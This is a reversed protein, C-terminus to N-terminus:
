VSLYFERLEKIPIEIVESLAFSYLKVNIESVGTIAEAAARYYSLQRIHRDILMKRAEEISVNNPIFDTKYDLVTLVGNGDVYLCDIVGQVLISENELLKKSEENESFSSAKLRANFRLERQINKANLLEYFLETNIFSKIMKSSVLSATTEDIFGSDTLRKLEFEFGNNKLSEFNCFQMFQHTATGIDAGTTIEGSIFKVENVKVKSSGELKACDDAEDLISPYLQSVSLKAPIDSSVSYPYTYNLRESILESLKEIREDNREYEAEDKYDDEIGLANEYADNCHVSTIRKVSAATQSMLIWEYLSHCVKYAYGNATNTYKSVKKVKSLTKSSKVTGTIVLKNIARTLAVYLVRIEEDLKEDNMSLQVTKRFVNDVTSLGTSDSLKLAIGLRDSILVNGSDSRGQANTSCLYVTKFELGKSKHITMISVTDDSTVSKPSPIIGGSDIIDNIYRIFSYLGKFTGNEFVRAHEYLAMLNKKGDIHPNNSILYMIGSDYLIHWILKNVPENAMGRYKALKNLFFTCKSDKTDEEYAKLAEFLSVGKKFRRIATLESLTFNYLPSKLAGCLYIDKSPNDIVNLLCMMLIVEPNVFLDADEPCKSKIGLDNLAKEYESFHTRNRMLIAIDSPKVGADIDAKIRLAVYQAESSVGKIKEESEDISIIEVPQDMSETKSFRLMDSEDYPVTTGLRTFLNGCVENAFDIITKDCRFNNSLSIVDVEDGTRYSAFIEPCSGRFGYISQKIDGVMFRNNDNTIASFIADQLMNVDQYEDICVEDYEACVKKATETPTGDENILLKYAMREFDNFDIIGRRQKENSFRRDFASLLKHLKLIYEKCGIATKEIENLDSSFYSTLFENVDSFFSTRIDKYFVSDENLFEAKVGPLTNKHCLSLAKVINDFSKEKIATLVSQCSDRNSIFEPLYKNSLIEDESFDQCADCLVHYYFSFLDNMRNILTKGWVSGFFDRSAKEYEFATKNLLDLGDPTSLLKAYIDLIIKSLVNDHLTIFNDAFLAFGDIDDYGKENAYYADIVAEAVQKKLLESQTEDSVKVNPSLGLQAYNDKVLNLCFGHITTIMANQLMLYQRSLRINSPDKAMEAKLADRIKDKLQNAADKTFTVVLMRSVDLPDTKSTLKDILRKTLVATKGSGAAASVLIDPSPSQIANLQEPTWKKDPM